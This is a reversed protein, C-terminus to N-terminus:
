RDSKTNETIFKYYDQSLAELKEQMTKLHVHSYLQKPQDHFEGLLEIYDKYILSIKSDKIDVVLTFQCPVPISIEQFYPKGNLTDRCPVAQKKSDVPVAGKGTISYKGEHNIKIGSSNFWEVTKSYLVDKSTNPVEYFRELRCQEPPLTACGAFVLCGFLVLCIQRM